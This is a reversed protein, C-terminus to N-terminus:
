HCHSWQFLLSSKMNRCCDLTATAPSAILELFHNWSTDETPRGRCYRKLHQLRCATLRCCFSPSTASYADLANEDCQKTWNLIIWPLINEPFSATGAKPRLTRQQRQVYIRISPWYSKRLSKLKDSAESYCM